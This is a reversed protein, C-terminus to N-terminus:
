RLWRVPALERGWFYCEPRGELEYLARDGPQCGLLVRAVRAITGVKVASYVSAVVQVPDTPLLHLEAPAPRAPAKATPIDAFMNM